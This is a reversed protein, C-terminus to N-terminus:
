DALDLLRHEAAEHVHGRARAAAARPLRDVLHARPAAALTALALLAVEREVDRGADVVALLKADRALALGPHAAAWRAVEVDEDAELFMRAELALAVVEDVHEADRGCLCRETVLEVHRRDFAIARLHAHRGARLVALGHAQPRLAHRLAVAATAPGRSSRACGRGDRGRRARSGGPM